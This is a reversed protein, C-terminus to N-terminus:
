CPLYRFNYRLLGNFDSPGAEFHERLGQRAFSSEEATTSYEEEKSPGSVGPSCRGMRVNALMRLWLVPAAFVKFEFQSSVQSPCNVHLGQGPLRWDFPVRVAEVRVRDPNSILGSQRDVTRLVVREGTSITIRVLYRFSIERDQNDLFDFDRM